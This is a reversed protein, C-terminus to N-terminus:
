NDTCEVVGIKTDGIPVFAAHRSQAEEAQTSVAGWALSMLLPAAPYEGAYEM